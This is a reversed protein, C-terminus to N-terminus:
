NERTAKKIFVTFYTNRTEVYGDKSSKLQCLYRGNPLLKAHNDLANFFIQNSVGAKFDAAIIRRIGKGSEADYIAVSISTPQKLCFSIFAGKENVPDPSVTLCGLGVSAYEIKVPVPTPTAQATAQVTPIRGPPVPSPVPTPPCLGENVRVLVPDSKTLKSGLHSIGAQFQLDMCTKELVKVRFWPAVKDPYYYRVVCTVSSIKNQDLSGIQRAKFMVMLNRIDDWTWHRDESAHYYGDFWSTGNTVKSLNVDRKMVGKTQGNVSYNFFVKDKELHGNSDSGGVSMRTVILVGTITPVGKSFDLDPAELKFWGANGNAPTTGDDFVSDPINFQREDKGDKPAGLMKEPGSWARASVIKEAYLKLTDVKMDRNSAKWRISRANSDYDAGPAYDLLQVHDPLWGTLEFRSLETSDRGPILRLSITQDFSASAPNAVLQAKAPSNPFSFRRRLLNREMPKATTVLFPVCGNGFVDGFHRDELTASGWGAVPHFDITRILHPDKSEWEVWGVPAWKSDDFKLETWGDPDKEDKALHFSKTQTTDSWLVFPEGASQYVTLRYSVNMQGGEETKFIKVGLVNEENDKFLELPLSGDATSLIRYHSAGFESRELIRSGNLYFGVSDGACYELVASTIYASSQASLGLFILHFFINRIKFTM